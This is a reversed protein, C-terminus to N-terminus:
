RPYLQFSWRQQFLNCLSFHWNLSRQNKCGVYPTPLLNILATSQIFITTIRHSTFSAGYNLGETWLRRGWGLASGMIANLVDTLVVPSHTNSKLEWGSWLCPQWRTVSGKNSDAQRGRTPPVVWSRSKKWSRLSVEEERIEGKIIHDPWIIEGVKLWWSAGGSSSIALLWFSAIGEEEVRLASGAKHVWQPSQPGKVSESVELGIPVQHPQVTVLSSLPSHSLFSFLPNWRWPFQAWM